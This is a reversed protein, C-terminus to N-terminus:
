FHLFFIGVMYFIYCLTHYMTFVPLINIRTVRIKKKMKGQYDSGNIPVVSIPIQRAARGFRYPLGLALGRSRSFYTLLMEQRNLNSIKGM